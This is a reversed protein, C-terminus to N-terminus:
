VPLRGQGEMEGPPKMRSRVEPLCLIEHEGKRTVEVRAAYQEGRPTVIFWCKGQQRYERYPVNHDLGKGDMLIKKERLIAFLVIPGVTMTGFEWLSRTGRDGLYDESLRVKSANLERAVELARKEKLVALYREAVQIEDLPKDAGRWHAEIVDAVEAQYAILKPRALDSVRGEDVTALLMLFTRVDVTVMDRTKGDAAVMPCLGVTAWSRGRLKTYQTAYDLGISEVAPKLVVHPRGDKLISFIKDGHFEITALATAARGTADSMALVGETTRPSSLGHPGAATM